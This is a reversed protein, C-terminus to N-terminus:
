QFQAKTLGKTKNNNYQICKITSMQKYQYENYILIIIKLICPQKTIWKTLISKFYHLMGQITFSVVM